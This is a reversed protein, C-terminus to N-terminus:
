VGASRGSDVGNLVVACGSRVSSFKFMCEPEGVWDAVTSGPMFVHSGREHNDSSLRYM